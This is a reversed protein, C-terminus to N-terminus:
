PDTRPDTRLSRSARVLLSPEVEPNRLGRRREADERERERALELLARKGWRRGSVLLIRRYAPQGRWLVEELLIETPAIPLETGTNRMSRLKVEAGVSLVM